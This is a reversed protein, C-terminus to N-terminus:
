ETILKAIEQNQAPLEATPLDDILAKLAMIKQNLETLKQKNDTNQQDQKLKAKETKTRDYLSKTIPTTITTLAAGFLMLGKAVLPVDINPMDITPITFAQSINQTFLLAIMSNRLVRNRVMTGKFYAFSAQLLAEKSDM